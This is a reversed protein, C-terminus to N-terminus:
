DAKVTVTVTATDAAVGDSLRYTFSDEGVFGGDPTYTFRGNEYLLLSGNTPGAVLEVSLNDGDLDIDNKIIGSANVSLTENATTEYSDNAAEPLTYGDNGALIGEFEDTTGNYTIKLSTEVGVSTTNADDLRDETVNNAIEGIESPGLGSEVEYSIVDALTLATDTTASGITRSETTYDYVNVRTGNEYGVVVYDVDEDSEWSITTPAGDGNRETVESSVGPDSEETVFAVYSIAPVGSDNTTTDNDSTSVNVISTTQANGATISIAGNGAVGITVQAEETDSLVAMTMGGSFVAIVLVLVLWLSLLEKKM